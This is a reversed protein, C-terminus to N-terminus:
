DTLGDTRRGEPVNDWNEIRKKKMANKLMAVIRENGKAKAYELPTLPYLVTSKIDLDNRKLLLEIIEDDGKLIAQFLPTQHKSNKSNVDVKNDALLMSIIERRTSTIALSLPTQDAADRSNVEVKQTDLLLKVIAEYELLVAWHLPNMKKTDTSNIEVNDFELLLEVMTKRGLRAALLLPTEHNNMLNVDVRGSKLLLKFITLNGNKICRSLSTLHDARGKMNVDVNHTELLLEIMAVHGFRTARLLPTENNDMLDVDVRGSNILLKFIALNGIEITCSLPSLHYFGNLKVDVNHDKLLLEVMTERGLRAARLLPTGCTDMLNVDILGSNLLLKFIPLNGNEITRSLPTLQDVGGKLNVDVKHTKLLLDVLAQDRHDIAYLLPTDLDNNMLNVDVEEFQLLMSVIKQRRTKIALFLPTCKDKNESNMDVKGTQLLRRVSEQDDKNIAISLPTRQNIDQLNVDIIDIELLSEIMAHDRYEIALILPTKSDIDPVNVNVKGTEFLSKIIKRGSPTRWLWCIGRYDTPGVIIKAFELLMLVTKEDKNQAAWSLPTMQNQNKWNVDIEDIELLSEIVKEHRNRAAWSLPNMQYQDKPNVDTQDVKLLSQVIAEHGNRAAWSLSTMGHEDKSNVNIYDTELLLDVMMNNGNQAMRSLLTQGQTNKSNVDVQSSSLLVKMIQKHWDHAAQEVPTWNLENIMEANRVGNEILRRLLDYMVQKEGSVYFINQLWHSKAYSLLEFEDEGRSRFPRRAEALVRSIDLDPRKKSKLIKLALSQTRSSSDLTSCIIRSSASGIPIPSVRMASVETGFVGYSLYTVVIDAMTRRASDISFAIETSIDSNLLLFQKVSHHVFRITSEEEDVILLCGCCALASHVDNLLKSPNWMADGPIVSLAERLEGVTLPRYAVSILQLIRGQYSKGSEGSKRLIRSFTESLNKPLDALADRVALDTRMTCLSQIQLAVWLFMGQAGKLLADHIEEILTPDGIVLKKGELCNKLEADIYSEIEPNADPISTFSAHTFREFSSELANSPEVRYSVCLLLILVKQLEQLLQILTERESHDCEDLGDLIFYAKHSSPFARRLMNIITEVDLATEDCLQAAEALDPTTRLLQRALSGIITRAKLSEAIDHKCFFYAVPSMKNQVNINLDDVINALLVSKGSGLKGTYVLTCSKENGKWEQYEIVQRFYSTNGVKRTQKWATEHDFTSCLDLVRLKTAMQRQHLISKFFKSSLSRARSNEQTEEEIKTAMLLNIEERISNAWYDLESQFVKIDSDGLTSAIQRFVSQRTYKLIQHCLRVVVIFYESLHSQLDKSRPYLLAM